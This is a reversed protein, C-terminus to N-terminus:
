SRAKGGEERARGKPQVESLGLQSNCGGDSGRVRRQAAGRSTGKSGLGGKGRAPGRPHQLDIAAVAPM